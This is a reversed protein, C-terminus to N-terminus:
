RLVQTESATGHAAQDVSIRQAVPDNPKASQESTAPYSHIVFLSGTVDRLLVQHNDAREWKLEEAGLQLAMRRTTQVDEVQIFVAWNDALYLNSTEEVELQTQTGHHLSVAASDPQQLEIQYALLDQLFDLTAVVNDSWIMSQWAHVNDQESKDRMYPQAEGIAFAALEPDALIAVRGRHPIDVPAMIQSGGQREALEAIEDVDDVALTPLWYSRAGVKGLEEIGGIERGNAKIIAYGKMEEEFQWGFLKAYFAQTKAMNPTALDHWIVDGTQAWNAAQKDASDSQCAALVFGFLVISITNLLVRM